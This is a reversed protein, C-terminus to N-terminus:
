FTTKSLDSNDSNSSDELSRRACAFSDMSLSLDTDNIKLIHNPPFLSSFEPTDLETTRVIQLCIEVAIGNKGM